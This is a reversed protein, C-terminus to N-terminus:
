ESLYVIKVGNEEEVKNIKFKTGQRILREEEGLQNIKGLDKINNSGKKANIVFFVNKAFRKSVEKNTSSSGYGDDIWEGGEVLKDLLEPPFNSGRYLQTDEELPKLQNYSYEMAEIKEQVVRMEEDSYEVDQIGKGPVFDIKTPRKGRLTDNIERYDSRAYASLMPMADENIEDGIFRTAAEKLDEESYDNMRKRADEIIPKLKDPAPEGKKKESIGLNSNIDNFLKDVEETIKNKIEKTVADEPKNKNKFEELINKINKDVDKLKKNDGSKLSNALKDVEENIRKKIEENPNTKTKPKLGIADIASQFRNTLQTTKPSVKSYCKNKNSQCKGGCQYNGINCNLKKM